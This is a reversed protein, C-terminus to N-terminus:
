HSRGRGLLQFELEIEVPENRLGRTEIGNVSIEFNPKVPKPFTPIEYM